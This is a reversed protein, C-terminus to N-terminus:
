GNDVEKKNQKERREPTVAGEIQNAYFELDCGLDNLESELKLRLQIEM